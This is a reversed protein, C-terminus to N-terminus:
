PPSCVSVMSYPAGVARISWDFGPRPVGPRVELVQGTSTLTAQAVVYSPSPGYHWVQVAVPGAQDSRFTVTAGAAVQQGTNSEPTCVEGAPPTTVALHPPFLAALSRDLLPAPYRTLQNPTLNPLPSGQVKRAALYSGVSFAPLWAPDVALDQNLGASDRYAWAVQQSVQGPLISGYYRASAAQHLYLGSMVLGILVVALVGAAAPSRWRIGSVCDALIVLVFIAAIDVYRSGGADANGYNSRVLGIIVFQAVLGVSAAIIGWHPRRRGWALGLIGALAIAGVPAWAVGLGVLAAASAGIGTAVYPLLSAWTSLAFPSQHGTITTHGIIAFWVLYGAIPLVLYLLRRRGAKELALEVILWVLFFLAPGQTMLAAMLAASGAWGRWWQVRTGTLLLIALLGLASSGVFGIQDAWILNEWGRGLVLFMAAAGLGLVEGSRRRIVLFLFLATLLNWAALVAMYPVYSRAGFLLLLVRYTLAPITAWHENHPVFYDGISFNRVYLVYSWEDYFFDYRRTLWLVLLGSLLGGVVVLPVAGPLGLQTLADGETWALRSKERVTQSTASSSPAQREGNM